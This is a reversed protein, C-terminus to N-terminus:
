LARLDRTSAQRHLQLAQADCRENDPDGAHGRVWEFTVDHQLAVRRYEQVLAWALPNKLRDKEKKFSGPKCWHITNMSDTRVLVRCTEKLAKIGGIVAMLEMRNNTTEPDRGSVERSSDKYRIIAVWAGPGPNPYCGGDTTIQVQKISM